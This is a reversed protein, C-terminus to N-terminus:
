LLAWGQERRYEPEQSKGDTAHERRGNKREEKQPDCDDMRVPGDWLSRGRDWEM